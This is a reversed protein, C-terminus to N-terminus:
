FLRRSKRTLYALEIDVTAPVTVWRNGQLRQFKECDTLLNVSKRYLSDGVNFYVNKFTYKKNVSFWANM